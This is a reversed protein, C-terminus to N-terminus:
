GAQGSGIERWLGPLEEEAQAARAEERGYLLGYTFASEGAAHAVASLERLTRRAMVSDQHEGLLTTLSKMNKTLARAPAGLAETAAEAAYRTRKAKKRAEHVAIDRDRGSPLDLAQEVLTSLTAR